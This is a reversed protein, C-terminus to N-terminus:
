DGNGVENQYRQILEKLILACDFSPRGNVKLMRVVVLQYALMAPMSDGLEACGNTKIGAKCLRWFVARVLTAEASLSGRRSIVEERDNWVRDCIKEFQESNITTIAIVEQRVLRPESAVM